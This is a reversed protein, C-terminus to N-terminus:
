VAEKTEWFKINFTSSRWFAFILHIQFTVGTSRSSIRENYHYLLCLLWEGNNINMVRNNQRSTCKNNWWIYLNSNILMYGSVNQCLHTQFVGSLDPKALFFKRKKKLYYIQKINTKSITHLLVSLTSMQSLFTLWM